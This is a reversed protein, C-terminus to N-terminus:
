RRTPARDRLAARIQSQPLAARGIRTRRRDFPRPYPKPKRRSNAQALLDYIDALLQWVTSAPHEWGAIAAATATSPDKILSRTLSWAERWAM